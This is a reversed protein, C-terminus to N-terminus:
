SPSRIQSLFHHLMQTLRPWGFRAASRQAASSLKDLSAPDDLLLRAASLFPKEEPATLMLGDYTLLLEGTNKGRTSLVPCGLVLPAILSGRRTSAGDSFPAVVLKSRGLAAAIVGAPQPGALVAQECPAFVRDRNEDVPGLMLLREDPEMRQALTALIPDNKTPHPRGFASVVRHGTLKLSSWLADSGPHDPEPLNNGIPVLSVPRHPGLARRTLTLREESTVVAGASLRAVTGFQVAQLLSLMRAKPRGTWEQFLEHVFLAAPLRDRLCSMLRILAPELGFRSYAFPAYQVLALDPRVNAYLRLASPVLDHLRRIRHVSALSSVSANAEPGPSAVLVHVEAALRGMAQGLQITHDAVGCLQPPFTPSILMLRM